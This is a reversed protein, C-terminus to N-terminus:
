DQNQDWVSAELLKFVTKLDYIQLLNIDYIFLHIAVKAKLKLFQEPSPVKIKIDVTPEKLKLFRLFFQVKEYTVEERIM